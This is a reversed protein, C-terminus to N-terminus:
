DTATDCAHLTVVMDVASVGDSDAIDGQLFKLKEYGYKEGLSSCHRIVDEKLFAHVGDAPRQPFQLAGPVNDAVLHPVALAADAVGLVDDVLLGLGFRRIRGM